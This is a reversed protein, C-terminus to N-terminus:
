AFLNTVKTLLKTLVPRNVLDDAASSQGGENWVRHKFKLKKACEIGLEKQTDLSTGEEEQTSTSVRTYIHLTEVMPILYMLDTEIDLAYYIENSLKVTCVNGQERTPM